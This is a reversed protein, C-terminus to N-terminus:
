GNLRLAGALGHCTSVTAVVAYRLASGTAAAAAARGLAIAAEAIAAVPITGVGFAEHLCELIHASAVADVRGLHAAVAQAMNWDLPAAIAPCTPPEICNVPCTWTAFSLAFNGNRLDRTFPTGIGAFLRAAEEAGARTARPAAIRALSELLIHSAFPSPVLRDRVVEGRAMAAVAAPLLAALQDTWDGARLEVRTDDVERAVRCDPDRDLVVIRAVPGGARDAFRLLQRVYFSGFCGGGIVVYIAPGPPIRPPRGPTM